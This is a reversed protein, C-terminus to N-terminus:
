GVNEYCINLIESVLGGYSQFSGDDLRFHWTAAIKAPQHHLTATGSLESTAEDETAIPVSQRPTISRSVSAGLSLAPQNLPQLNVASPDFQTSQAMSAIPRQVVRPMQLRPDGNDPVATLVADKSIQIIHDDLLHSDLNIHQSQPRLSTESESLSAAPISLPVASAPDTPQHCQTLSSLSAVEDTTSLQSQPPNALLELSRDRNLDGHQYSSYPSPITGTRDVGQDSALTSPANVPSQM